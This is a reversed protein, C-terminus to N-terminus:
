ISYVIKLVSELICSFSYCKQVRKENENKDWWNPIILTGSFFGIEFFSRNKILNVCYPNKFHFNLSIHCYFCGSCWMMEKERPLRMHIILMYLYYNKPCFLISVRNLSFNQHYDFSLTPWSVKFFAWVVSSQALLLMIAISSGSVITTLCFFFSCSTYLEM